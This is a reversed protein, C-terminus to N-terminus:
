ELATVCRALAERTGELGSRDYDVSPLRPQGREWNDLFQQMASSPWSLQSLVKVSKAADVINADIIALM